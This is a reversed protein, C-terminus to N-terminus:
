FIASDKEAWSLSDGTVALAPLPETIFTCLRLKEGSGDWKEIGITWPTENETFGHALIDGGYDILFQNIDAEM